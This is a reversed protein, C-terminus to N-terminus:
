HYYCGKRITVDLTSCPLQTRRYSLSDSVATSCARLVLPRATCGRAHVPQVKADARHREVGATEARMGQPARAQSCYSRPTAQRIDPTAATACHYPALAPRVTECHIKGIATDFYALYEAMNILPTHALAPGGLLGRSRSGKNLGAFQIRAYMKPVGYLCSVSFL